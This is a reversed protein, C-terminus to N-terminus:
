FKYQYCVFAAYYRPSRYLLTNEPVKAFYATLKAYLKESIMHNDNQIIQYIEGASLNKLKKKAKELAEPVNGVALLSQYFFLMLIATALDDVKWLASVVYKVGAVGFALHLGSQQEYLTFSSTGSNCASLVALKTAGLDMRSIEEATLLGNGYEGVEKGSVYWDAIGSFALASNYWANQEGIQKVMGHTAIHIVSYGQEILFKTANKGTFASCGILDAVKEAEYKSYPLASIYEINFLKEIGDALVEREKVTSVKQVYVKKGDSLTLNYEPSGIVCSERYIEKVGYDHEFLDRVSQCYIYRKGEMEEWANEFILEFPLNYLEKHPSIIINSIDRFLDRFSGFMTECIWEAEKQYKAKLSTIKENFLRIQGQLNEINHICIHRFTVTTDKALLFIDLCEEKQGGIGTFAKTRGHRWAEHNTYLIEILVTSQPLVTTIREFSFFSTEENKKYFSAFEMELERLENSLNLTEEAKMRQKRNKGSALRNRIENIKELRSVNYKNHYIKKTRGRVVSLMVNKYNASYVFLKEPMGARSSFYSYALYFIRDCVFLYEEMQMNDLLYEAGSYLRPLQRMMHEACENAKKDSYLSYFELAHSMFSAYYLRENEGVNRELYGSVARDMYQIAKEKEDMQQYLLSKGRYFEARDSLYMQEIQGSREKEDLLFLMDELITSDTKEGMNESLELLMEYIAWMYDDAAVHYIMKSELGELIIKRAQGILKKTSYSNAYVIVLRQLDEQLPEVIKGAYYGDHLFKSLKRAKVIEDQNIYAFSLNVLAQFELQHIKENEDIQELIKEYYRIAALFNGKSTYYNALCLNSSIFHNVGELEHIQYFEVVRQYNEAIAGYEPIDKCEKFRLTVLFYLLKLYGVDVGDEAYIYHELMENLVTEERLGVLERYERKFHIDKDYFVRFLHYQCRAVWHLVEMSESLEVAKKACIIANEYDGSTESSVARDLLESVRKENDKM